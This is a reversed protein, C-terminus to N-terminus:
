VIWQQKLCSHLSRIAISSRKGVKLRRIQSFEHFSEFLYYYYYSRSVMWEWVALVEIRVVVLEIRNM